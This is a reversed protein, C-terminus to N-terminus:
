QPPIKPSTLIRPTCTSGIFTPCDGCVVNGQLKWRPGRLLRSPAGAAEAEAAAAAGLGGLPAAGLNEEPGKGHGRAQLIFIIRVTAIRLAKM